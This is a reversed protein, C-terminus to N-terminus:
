ACCRKGGIIGRACSVGHGAGGESPRGLRERWSGIAGKTADGSVSDGSPDAPTVLRCRVPISTFTRRQDASAATITNANLLLRERGEGSGAAGPM